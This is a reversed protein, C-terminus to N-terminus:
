SRVSKRKSEIRAPQAERQDQSGIARLHDRARGRQEAADGGHRRREEDHEDRDREVHGDGSPSVMSVSRTVSRTPLM